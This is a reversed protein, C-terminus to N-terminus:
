AAAGAAAREAVDVQPLLGARRLLDGFKRIEVPREAGVPWAQLLARASVAAIEAYKADATAGLISWAAAWSAADGRSIATGTVAALVAHVKDPRDPVVFEGPFDLLQSPDPLDRDAAWTCFEWGAGAGVAGVVLNQEVATRVDLDAITSASALAPVVLDAWSRPSPWAGGSASEPLQHLLHPRASIFGAVAARATVRRQHLDDDDHPRGWDRLLGSVWEAAEPVPYQIHVMRNALPAALEWGDAAQAPPNAAFVIRCSSPLVTDGIVRDTGVRLLAAQQPPSCNSVEDLFLVAGGCRDAGEIIRQVYDPALLSFSGDVIAPFGAIDQPERISGLVTECHWGREAALAEVLRTKGVGPPGWLVFPVNGDLLADLTHSLTVASPARSTTSSPQIERTATSSL